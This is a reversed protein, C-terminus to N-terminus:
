KHTKVQLCTAVKRTPPMSSFSSSSTFNFIHTAPLFKSKKNVLAVDMRESSSYRAHIKEDHVRLTAIALKVM